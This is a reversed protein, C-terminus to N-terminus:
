IKEVDSKSQDMRIGKRLLVVGITRLIIKVDLILSYNEIYELDNEIREKISLENRGNIQALGTMGPKMLLRKRQRDTMEDTTIKLLPRPGVLSMEGKLVNFLQPLEDISTKRIFKGSKTIRPDDEGEFYLGAGIYQANEIMSRFKYVKFIKGDKGVRDQKFIIPGESEIKIIFATIFLIPSIAIIGILALIRDLINKISISINNIKM